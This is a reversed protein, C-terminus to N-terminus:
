KGELFEAISIYEVEFKTIKRVMPKRHIPFIPIVVYGALSTYINFEELMVITDNCFLHFTKGDLKTVFCNVSEVTGEFCSLTWKEVKKKVHYSHVTLVFYIFYGLIQVHACPM